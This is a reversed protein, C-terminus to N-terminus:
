ALWRGGTPGEKSARSAPAPCYTSGEDDQVVRMEHKHAQVKCADQVVALALASLGATFTWGAEPGPLGADVTVDGTLGYKLRVAARRGSVELSSPWCRKVPTDKSLHMM